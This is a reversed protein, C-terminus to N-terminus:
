GEIRAMASLTLRAVEVALVDASQKLRQPLDRLRTRRHAADLVNCSLASAALVRRGPGDILLREGNMEIWQAHTDDAVLRANAREGQLAGRAQSIAQEFAERTATPSSGARRWHQIPWAWGPWQGPREAVIPEFWRYMEATREIIAAEERSAPPPLPESFRVIRRGLRDWYCAALVIPVGASAALLAPGTRMYLDQGLFRFDARHQDRSASFQGDMYLALFKGERLGRVARLADRSSSATLAEFTAGQHQAASQWVSEVGTRVSEAAYAMVSCGLEGLAVPIYPFPGLHMACVLAGRGESRLRRIVSAHVIREAREGRAIASCDRVFWAHASASERAIARLRAASAHPFSMALMTPLLRTMTSSAESGSLAVLGIALKERWLHVLRGLEPAREIRDGLDQELLDQVFWAGDSGPHPVLNFLAFLVTLALAPIPMPGAFAIALGAVAGALVWQAYVGALDVGLRAGRPLRRTDPLETTLRLGQGLTLTIAGPVGGGRSFAAAHMWEHVWLSVLALPLALAWGLPARWDASGTRLVAAGLTIAAGLALSLMVAPHTLWALRQALRAVRAGAHLTHVRQRRTARQRTGPAFTAIGQTVLTRELLERAQVPTVARGLRQELRAAIGEVTLRGDLQSVLWAAEASLRLRRHGGVVAELGEPRELLELRDALRPIPALPHTM